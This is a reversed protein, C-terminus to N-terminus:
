KLRDTVNLMRKEVHVRNKLKLKRVQVVFGGQDRELVGEMKVLTVLFDTFDKNADELKVADDNVKTGSAKVVGNNAAKRTAARKRQGSEKAKTRIAAKNHKLADAQEEKGLGALGAATSVNIKGTAV